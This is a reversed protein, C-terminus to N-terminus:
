GNISVGGRRRPELSRIYYMMKNSLSAESATKYCCDNMGFSSTVRPRVRGRRPRGSWVVRHWGEGFVFPGAHVDGDTAAVVVVRRPEGANFAVWAHSVRCIEIEDDDTGTYGPADEGLARRPLEPQRRQDDILAIVDPPVTVVKDVPFPEPHALVPHVQKVRSVRAHPLVHLPKALPHRIFVPHFPRDFSAIAPTRAHITFLIFVISAFVGHHGNWRISIGDVREKGPRIQLRILFGLRPQISPSRHIFVRFVSLLARQRPRSWLQIIRYKLMVRLLLPILIWLFEVRADQRANRHARVRIIPVKAIRM